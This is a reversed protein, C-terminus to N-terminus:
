KKWEGKEALIFDEDKKPANELLSKKFGECVEGEGESREFEERNVHFDLDDTKVKELAKAFKDLIEKAEKEIKVKDVM